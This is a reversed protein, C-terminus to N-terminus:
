MEDSQIFLKIQLISILNYYQIHHSIYHRRINEEKKKVYVNRLWWNQKELYGILHAINDAFM